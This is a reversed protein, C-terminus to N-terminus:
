PLRRGSRKGTLAFPVEDMSVEGCTASLAVAVTGESVNGVAKGGPM